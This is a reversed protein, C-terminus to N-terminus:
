YSNSTGTGCGGIIALGNVSRLKLRGKGALGIMHGGCRICRRNRWTPQFNNLGLYAPDTKFRDQNGDMFAAVRLHIQDLFGPNVGGACTQAGPGCRGQHMGLLDVRKGDLVFVGSCGEQRLIQTVVWGVLVM